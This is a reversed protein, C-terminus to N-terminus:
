KSAESKDHNRFPMNTTYSAWTRLMGIKTVQQICCISLLLDCLYLISFEASMVCDQLAAVRDASITTQGDTVCFDWDRETRANYSSSLCPKHLARLHDTSVGRVRRQWESLPCCQPRLAPLPAPSISAQRIECMQRRTEQEIYGRPVAGCRRIPRTATPHGYLSARIYLGITLQLWSSCSSQRASSICNCACM